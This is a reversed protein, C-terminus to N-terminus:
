IFMCQNIQWIDHWNRGRDMFRIEVADLDDLLPMRVPEAGLLRDLVPWYLRQLNGEETFEYAVRQVGGRPMGAPNMWGGRSFEVLFINRADALMAPHRGDGLESRIPRPQVQEFDSTMLRITFQLAKLEEIKLATRQSQEIVTNLGGFAMVGIIAFIAMSVLVEILTFGRPKM